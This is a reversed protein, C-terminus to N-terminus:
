LYIYFYLATDNRFVSCKRLCRYNGNKNAFFKHRCDAFINNLNYFCCSFAKNPLNLHNVTTESEGTPSPIIDHTETIFLM